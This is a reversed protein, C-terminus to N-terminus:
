LNKNFFSKFEDLDIFGDKNSDANNFFRNLDNQGYKRGLCSNLQDFAKNMEDKTIQGSNNTNINNFINFVCPSKNPTTSLSISDIISRTTENSMPNKIQKTEDPLSDVVSRYEGLGEKELNILKLLQVDGYLENTYNHNNVDAALIIGARPKIKKVFEPLDKSEILSNGYTKRYEAPNARVIGLDKVVQTIKVNPPEWQVIVNKPKPVLSPKNQGPKYLIVKRKVQPYPLWREIIFPQPKPPLTPLREVIVKRPPPPLRKGSITIVKIGVPKTAPPPAERIVIPPPTVPRPPQQRIILPPAPPVCMNEEERIIIDGMSPPTPPRLYRISIEKVYEVTRDCKKHIIIPNKDQNIEPCDNMLLKPGNITFENASAKKGRLYDDILSANEDSKPRRSKVVITRTVTESKKM